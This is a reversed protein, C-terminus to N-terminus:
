RDLVLVTCKRKMLECECFFITCIHLFVGFLEAHVRLANFKFFVDYLLLYTTKPFVGFLYNNLANKDVFLNQKGGLFCNKGAVSNLRNVFFCDYYIKENIEFKLIKPNDPAIIQLDSMQKYAHPSIVKEKQHYNLSNNM